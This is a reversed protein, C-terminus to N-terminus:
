SIKLGIKEPKFLSKDMMKLTDSVVPKFEMQMLIERELDIGPAIEILTIGQDTLKFVARETVYLIQQNKSLATKASFTIQDIGKVFKKNKGEKRIILNGDEFDTELGNTTFTGCYVVKKANQTIDIFGGCGPIKSGFKSVNVNGTQDVQAMGLFAMDLGGGHYFDFQCAQDIIAEPNASCGFSLGSSPVGGIPGAEVTMVFEDIVNEENAVAAIGEPM